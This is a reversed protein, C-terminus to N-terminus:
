NACGSIASSLIGAQSPMELHDNKCASVVDGGLECTQLNRKQLEAFFNRFVSQVIDEPDLKSVLLKDIKTLAFPILRKLLRAIEDPDSYDMPRPPPSEQDM